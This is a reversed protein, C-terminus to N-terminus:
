VITERSPTPPAAVPYTVFASLSVKLAAGSCQPALSPWRARVPSACWAVRERRDGVARTDGIWGLMSAGPHSDTITKHTWAGSPVVDIEAADGWGRM